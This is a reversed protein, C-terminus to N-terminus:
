KSEQPPKKRRKAHAQKLCLEAVRRFSDASAEDWKALINEDAFSKALKRERRRSKKNLRFPSAM